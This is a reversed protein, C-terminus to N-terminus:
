RPIVLVKGPQILSGKIGNARQLASVSTKNRAAIASLTDGKKITYRATAPKKAVTKKATAKPKTSATSASTRRTTTTTRSATKVQTPRSIVPTSSIRGPQPTNEATPIPVSDSPPEDNMVLADGTQSGGRKWKSPNDAWEEIYNGRSDFPGTGSPNNNSATSGTSGCSALLLATCGAATMQLALKM